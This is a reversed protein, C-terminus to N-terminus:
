NESFIESLPIKTTVNEKKTRARMSRWQSIDEPFNMRDGKSKLKSIMFHMQRTSKDRKVVERIIHRAITQTNNLTDKVTIVNMM